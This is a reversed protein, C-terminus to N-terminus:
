HQWHDTTKCSTTIVSIYLFIFFCYSIVIFYISFILFLRYLLRSIRELMEKLKPLGNKACKKPPQSGTFLCDLKREATVRVNRYAAHFNAEVLGLNAIFVISGVTFPSQLENMVMCEGKLLFTLITIKKRMEFLVHISGANETSKAVKGAFTLGFRLFFVFFM